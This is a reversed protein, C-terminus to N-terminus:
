VGGLTQSLDPLEIKKTDPKDLKLKPLKLSVPKPTHTDLIKYFKESM